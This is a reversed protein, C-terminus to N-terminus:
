KVLAMMPTGAECFGRRMVLFRRGDVEIMDGISLSPGTYGRIMEQEIEELIEHPANAIHFAQDLISEISLLPTTYSHKVERVLNWDESFSRGRANKVPDQIHLRVFAM